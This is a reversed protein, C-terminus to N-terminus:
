RGELPSPLWALMRPRELFHTVDGAQRGDCCARSWAVHGRGDPGRGNPRCVSCIFELGCPYYRAGPGTNEQGIRRGTGYDDGDRRGSRAARVRQRPFLGDRGRGRDGGVARAGSAAAPNHKESAPVNTENLLPHLPILRDKMRTRSRPLERSFTGAGGANEKQQCTRVGVFCSSSGEFGRDQEAPCGETM